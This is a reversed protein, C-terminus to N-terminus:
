CLINRARFLLHDKETFLKAEGRKLSFQVKSMSGPDKYPMLDALYVSIGHRFMKHALKFQFEQADSDLALIVQTHNEEIKAFLKSNFSLDNGALFTANDGANFLDFFGEVLVLPKQFDINLENLIITNKWGRPVDCNSYKPWQSDNLSRGIVFNLFGDADFSPFIVRNKLKEDDFTVGLKFRVVEEMGVSRSALYSLFPKAAGSDKIEFLSVFGKPLSPIFDFQKQEVAGKFLKHVSKIEEESCFPKLLNRLSRGAKGCVWCHFVGSILNVSLKRKHHHCFPCFFVAEQNSENFSCKGLYRELLDLKNKQDM